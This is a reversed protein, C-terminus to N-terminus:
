NKIRFVGDVSVALGFTADAFSMSEFSVESNIRNWSAGGDRTEYLFRDPGLGWGHKPTDFHLNTFFQHPAPNFAVKGPHLLDCWSRGGDVSKVIRGDGFSLWWLTSSFMEVYEPSSDYNDSLYKEQVCQTKFNPRKWNNGGDDTYYVTQGLALGHNMDFFKVASIRGIWRPLIPQHNWTQGSDDTRFVADEVVKDGYRANNPVGIKEEEKTLPRYVGGAVWGTQNDNFWVSRIEGRQSDIPSTRATWTKGGDATGFLNELSYRWGMQGSIFHYRLSPEKEDITNVLTWTEGRDLSRWLRKSDYLWCVDDKVCQIGRRDGNGPVDAIRQWGDIAHHTPQAQKLQYDASSVKPTDGTSSCAIFFPAAFYVISKKLRARIM